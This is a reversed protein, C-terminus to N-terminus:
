RHRGQVVIVMFVAGFVPATWLSILQTKINATKPLDEAEALIQMAGGYGHPPRAPLGWFLRDWV